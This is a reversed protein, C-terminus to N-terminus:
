HVAQIKFRLLYDLLRAQSAQSIQRCCAPDISLNRLAEVANAQAQTSGNELVKVLGAVAGSQAVAVQARSCGSMLCDFSKFPVIMQPTTM